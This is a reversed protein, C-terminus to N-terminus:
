RRKKRRAFFRLLKAVPDDNTSVTLTTVGRRRCERQWFLHHSDWFERYRRRFTPVSGAAHLTAGTEPDILEALGSLPFVKESPDTIKVAIVDHKKALLSLERWSPNVRFDSIIVCIGRRKLSEYVTRVAYALDSGRSQLPLGTIDEVLRFVQKKGKKPPVWKEIHDSFFAAGVRDNNHVAAFALLSSLVLVMDQRSMRGTATGLSASADVLLFLTMEREERFTKTYPSGMRSSVNWDIFRSDDGQQYERVEDFELGPGRFVSRYNGSFLGEVIKESALPLNKIRSFLEFTNM